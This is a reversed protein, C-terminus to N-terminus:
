LAAANEEGAGLGQNAQQHQLALAVHAGADIGRPEHRTIAPRREAPEVLREPARARMELAVVNPELGPDVLVESRGRDPARLLEVQERLRTVVADERHPVAFARADVAAAVDELVRVGGAGGLVAA